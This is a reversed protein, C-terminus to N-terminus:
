ALGELDWCNKNSEIFLGLGGCKQQKKNVIPDKWDFTNKSILLRKSLLYHLFFDNEFNNRRNYKIRQHLAKFM